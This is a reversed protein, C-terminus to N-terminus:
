RRVLGFGNEEIIYNSIFGIYEIFLEVVMSVYVFFIFEVIRM